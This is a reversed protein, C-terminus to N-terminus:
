YFYLKEKEFMSFWGERGSSKIKAKIRVIMSGNFAMTRPASLVEVVEGAPALLIEKAESRAASFSRAESLIFVSPIRVVVGSPDLPTAERWWDIRPANLFSAATTETSSSSGASTSTSKGEGKMIKFFLDRHNCNPFVSVGGMEAVGM